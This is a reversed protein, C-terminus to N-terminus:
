PAVQVQSNGADPPIFGPLTIYTGVTGPYHGYAAPVTVTAPFGGLGNLIVPKIFVQGGSVYWTVDGSDHASRLGGHGCDSGQYDGTGDRNLEIWLWVGGGQPGGINASLEIQYLAGRGYSASAPAAAALAGAGALVSASVVTAIRTRIGPRWARPASRLNGM